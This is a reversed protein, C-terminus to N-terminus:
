NQQNIKVIVDKIDGKAFKAIVIHAISIQDGSLFERQTHVEVETYRGECM